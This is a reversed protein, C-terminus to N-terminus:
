IQITHWRDTQFTICFWRLLSMVQVQTGQSNIIEVSSIVDDFVLAVRKCNDTRTHALSLPCNIHTHPCMYYAPVFPNYAHLTHLSVPLSTLVM